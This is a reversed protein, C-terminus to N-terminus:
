RAQPGLGARIAGWLEITTWRSMGLKAGASPVTDAGEAMLEALADARERRLTKRDVVASRGAPPVGPHKAQRLRHLQGM